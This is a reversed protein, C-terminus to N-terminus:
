KVVGLAGENVSINEIVIHECWVRVRERVRERARRQQRYSERETEHRKGAAAERLGTAERECAHM